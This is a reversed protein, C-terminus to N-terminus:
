ELCLCESCYDTNVNAGCCDGGDFNCDINNNIDDCYDDGIWDEICTGGSGSPTTGGDGEEFCFSDPVPIAVTLERGVTLAQNLAAWSCIGYSCSLQYIASQYYSGDYGGFLFVDGQIELMSHKRLAKPLAPGLTLFLFFFLTFFYHAKM